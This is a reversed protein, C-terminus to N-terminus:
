KFEKMQHFLLSKVAFKPSYSLLRQNFYKVPSLVECGFKGTPFLHSFSLQKCNEDNMIPKPLKGEGPAIDICESNIDIQPCTPVLCKKGVSSSYYEILNETQELEDRPEIILSPSTSINLM